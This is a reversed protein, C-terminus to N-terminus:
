RGVLFSGSEKLSETAESAIFVKNEKKIIAAVVNITNVSVKIKRVNKM